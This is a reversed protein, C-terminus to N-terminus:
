HTLDVRVAGLNVDASSRTSLYIAAGGAALAVGGIVYPWATSWFGSKHNTDSDGKSAGASGLPLIPALAMAAPAIAAGRVYSKGEVSALRNQHVDLADVRVYLTASPLTLSAPLSFRVTTAPDQADAYSRGSSPDRAFIAVKSAVVAHAADLTADVQAPEGSAVESPINAGLAIAGIRAETRRARDAIVAARKGAEPPLVFHPDILAAAKFASLAAAKKGLVTLSSGLRVYADLVDSPELGGTDIAEQYLPEAVDYDGREWAARARDLAAAGRPRQADGPASDAQNPQVGAAPQGSRPAAPTPSHRQAQAEAGVTLLTAVV